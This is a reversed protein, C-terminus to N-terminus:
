FARSVENRPRTVELEIRLISSLDQRSSCLIEHKGYVDRVTQLKTDLWGLETFHM